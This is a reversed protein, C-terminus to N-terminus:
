RRGAQRGIERQIERESIPQNGYVAWARVALYLLWTGFPYVIWINWVDHIGSSQSFGHTPWGGANNYESVAWAAVVGLLIVTATVVEFQFRRRRELRKIAQERAVQDNDEPPSPHPPASSSSPTRTENMATEKM